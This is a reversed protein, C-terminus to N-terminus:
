KVVNAFRQTSNMNQLQIQLQIKQRKMAALM